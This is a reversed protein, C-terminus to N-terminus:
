GALYALLDQAVSRNTVEGTNPDTTSYTLASNRFPAQDFTFASEGFFVALLSALGGGLSHGTFSIAAGEPASAKIQLYYDAAQRLQAPLAGLALPINAYLWDGNGFPGTGAFSIVIETSTAITTGNIFSIAEFGSGDPPNDHRTAQWGQPVPFQNLPDRNSIYAGGAMLAYEIATTM